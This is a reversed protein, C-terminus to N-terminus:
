LRALTLQDGAMVREIVKAVAVCMEDGYRGGVVQVGVPM